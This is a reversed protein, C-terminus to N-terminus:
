PQIVRGEAIVVYDKGGSYFFEELAATAEKHSPGGVVQELRELEGESRELAM